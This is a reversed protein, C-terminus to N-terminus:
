INFPHCNGTHNRGANQCMSVWLGDCIGIVAPANAFHTSSIGCTSNRVHRRLHLLM